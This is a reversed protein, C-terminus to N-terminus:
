SRTTMTRPISGLPLIAPPSRNWSAQSVADWASELEDPAIIEDTVRPTDGDSKVQAAM